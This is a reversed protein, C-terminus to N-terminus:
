LRKLGKKMEYALQSAFAEQLEPGIEQEIKPILGRFVQDVSPGYLHEIQNRGRGVRWFVGFGNGGAKNGRRLPMLFFGPAKKRAGGRKVKVSLGASVYGPPIGRLKDGKGARTGWSGKRGRGSGPGTRAAANAAAIRKENAKRLLQRYGYTALTTPRDRADVRAVLRTPTAVSISMRDKVYGNSLRVLSVIERRGRTMTKGAVKNLTRYTARSAIDAANELGKLMREVAATNIKVSM